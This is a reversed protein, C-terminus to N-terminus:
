ASLPVAGDELHWSSLRLEIESYKYADRHAGIHAQQDRRVQEPNTSTTMRDLCGPHHCTWWYIRGFMLSFTALRRGRHAPPLERM